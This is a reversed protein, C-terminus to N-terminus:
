KCVLTLGDVLVSPSGIPSVKFLLDDAVLRVDKLMQYFNGSITFQNLPKTIQGNEVLFGVAGFSFDGSVMSFGAHLGTLEDIYVGNGLEKLLEQKSVNGPEVYFNFSKVGGSGNGNGTSKVGDKHATKLSHLFTKLVGNKIVEKRSTPYGEGDYPVTAYGEELLPDDIVSLVESAVREGLKGAFQSQKEQVNKASCIQALFALMSSFATNEFIVATKQSQLDEADLKEVAKRVAEDVLKDADFDEDKALANMEFSSKVVEGDKASLEIYVIAMSEDFHRNLGLSNRIISTTENYEIGTELVKNIRKDKAYAKKELEKAFAFKDLKDFKEKLPQYPKVEQYQGSGDHFFNEDSENIIEANEVAQAIVFPINKEDLSSCGCWGIKGNQKVAFVLGANENNTIDSVEGDIIKFSNEQERRYKIQFEGLKQKQAEDYLKNVFDQAQM